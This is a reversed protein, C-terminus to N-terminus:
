LHMLMVELPKMGQNQLGWFDNILFTFSYVWPYFHPIECLTATQPQKWKSSCLHTSLPPFQLPYFFFFFLFVVIWPDTHPFLVASFILMFMIWNFYFSNGVSKSIFTLIGACSLFYSCVHEIVCGILQAKM